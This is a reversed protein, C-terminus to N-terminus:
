SSDEPQEARYALVDAVLLAARYFGERFAGEMIAQERRIYSESLKELWAARETALRRSLAESAQLSEATARSYEPEGFRKESELLHEIM